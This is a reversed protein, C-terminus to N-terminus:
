SPLKKNKFRSIAGFAILVHQVAPASLRAGDPPSEGDKSAGILFDYGGAYPCGGIVGSLGAAQRVSYGWFGYCKERPEM